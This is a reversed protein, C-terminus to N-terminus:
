LLFKNFGSPYGQTLSIDKLVADTCAELKIKNRNKM